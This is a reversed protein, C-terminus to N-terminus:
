KANVVAIESSAWRGVLVAALERAVDRWVQPADSLNFTGAELANAGEDSEPLVCLALYKEASTIGVLRALSQRRRLGDNLERDRTAKRLRRPDLRWLKKEEFDRIRDVVITIPIGLTGLDHVAQATKLASLPDPRTVLVVQDSARLADIAVREYFSTGGDIVVLGNEARLADFVELYDQESPRTEDDGIAPIAFLGNPMKALQSSLSPGIGPPDSALRNAIAAVAPAGAPLAAKMSRDEPNCEVLVVREKRFESLTSAAARAVTTAGVGQNAGVVTVVGPRLLRGRGVAVDLRAEYSTSDIAKRLRGGRRAGSSLGAAVLADLDTHNGPALHSPGRLFARASNVAREWKNDTRHPFFNRSTRAIVSAVAKDNETVSWGAQVPAIGLPEVHVVSGEVVGQDALSGLPDLPSASRQLRATWVDSLPNGYRDVFLPLVDGVIREADVTEDGHGRTGVIRVTIDAM